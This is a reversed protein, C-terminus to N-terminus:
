GKLISIAAKVKNVFDSLGNIKRLRKWIYKPRYYFQIYANKIIRELDNKTLHPYSIFSQKIPDIARYEPEIMWGADKAIKNFETYPFPTCVSILVYDVDLKIAEQLTHKITQKTELACSGILINLEPEIGYKKLNSVAKYIMEVKIDKRIYDLIEQNFSEVGIAIFACGAEAMAKVVNENLLHNARALCCWEMDLGKLGNMIDLTRQEDWPFQDDLIFFSKYGQAKIGKVEELISNASRVRVPPKANGKSHGKFEIERAFDLSNPVCYYCRYSCGRSAVLATCPLRSLKPNYYEAADILSRDPFPLRDLNEIIPRPLNNIVKSEKKYSIGLVDSLSENLVMKPALERITDEPEGRIVVSDDAVFDEPAATPETSLFIFKAGHRQKRIIERALLDTKKSLFVTYFIYVNSDDEKLYNVFDAGVLWGTVFDVVKVNFNCEKLIAALTLIFINPTPYIGYNCGFIREAALKGDLPPPTLFTAKM